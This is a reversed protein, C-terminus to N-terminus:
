ITWVTMMMIMMVSLSQSLLQQVQLTCKREGVTRTLREVAALRNQEIRRGFLLPSYFSFTIIISFSLIHHHVHPLWVAVDIV